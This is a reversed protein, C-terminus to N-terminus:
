RTPPQQQQQQVPAPKTLEERLDKSFKDDLADTDWDVEWLATNNPDEQQATWDAPWCSAKCRAAAVAHLVGVIHADDICRAMIARLTAGEQSFEEFEDDELGPKAQQPPQAM